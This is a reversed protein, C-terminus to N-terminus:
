ERNFFISHYCFASGSRGGFTFGAEEAWRRTVKPPVYAPDPLEESIALRAGPKLVRQLEWLALQPNPIQSLTAVMVALDLSDDDLPLQYAGCCHLRVRELLDFEAIRQQARELLSPQLDAAHVLGTPGVMRAMEVTFTGTGCGLDLVQMGAQLGFLGLMGVPDRYRMRWPHDLATAFQHPMPYPRVRVAVRMSIQSGLVAGGGLAMAKTM